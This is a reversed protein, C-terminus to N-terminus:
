ALVPAAGSRGPAAGAQGAALALWADGATRGAVSTAFMRRLRVSVKVFTCRIAVRCYLTTRSNTHKGILM